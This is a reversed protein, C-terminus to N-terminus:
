KAANEQSTKSDGFILLCLFPSTPCQPFLQTAYMYNQSPVLLETLFDYPHTLPPWCTDLLCISCSSLFLCVLETAISLMSICASAASHAWFSSSNQTGMTYETHSLHCCILIGKILIKILSLFFFFLGRSLDLRILIQWMGSWVNWWCRSTMQTMDTVPRPVDGILTMERSQRLPPAKMGLNPEMVWQKRKNMQLHFKEWFSSFAVKRFGWCVRRLRM